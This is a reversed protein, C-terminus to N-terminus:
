GERSMDKGRGKFGGVPSVASQAAVPFAGMSGCVIRV